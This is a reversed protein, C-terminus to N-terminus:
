LQLKVTVPMGQHLKQSPHQVVIRLRYVLDTRLDVTEVNKPTFEAVPSIFGVQGEYVPLDSTDTEVLAKMGPAVLGLDRESVYARIWLPEQMSLTFVPEGANLVTGPERIRTLIVGKTPCYLHTDELSTLSSALQARAQALNATIVELNTVADQYDEVTVSGEVIDQRRAAKVSANQLSIELAAVKAKMEAVNEEYPVPDLIAMLQGPELQDGEDCFLEKVRGFVRFGLDAQRIDVNGYLILEKRNERARKKELSYLVAGAIIFLILCLIIIRFLKNNKLDM